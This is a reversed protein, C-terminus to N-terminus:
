KVYYQSLIGDLPPRWVVVMYDARHSVLLLSYIVESSCISYYHPLVNAIGVETKGIKREFKVTPATPMGVFSHNWELVKSHQSYTTCMELM